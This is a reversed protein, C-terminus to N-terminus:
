TYATSACKELARGPAQTFDHKELPLPGKPCVYDLHPHITIATQHVAKKKKGEERWGLWKAKLSAGWVGKREPPSVPLDEGM